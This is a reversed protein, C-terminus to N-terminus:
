IRKDGVTLIVRYSRDRRLSDIMQIEDGSLILEDGVYFRRLFPNEPKYNIDSFVIPNGDTVLTVRKGVNRKLGDRGIIAM